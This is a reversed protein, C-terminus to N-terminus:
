RRSVLRRRAASKSDRRRHQPLDSVMIAIVLGLAGVAAGSFLVLALVPYGFLKSAGTSQSALAGAIVLAAVVVGIALRNALRQASRMLERENIGQINFTFTGEALADMVSNIRSPLKEAFEKAELASTLLNGPSVGRALKKRLLQEAHREIVENPRLDPNLIRGVEDLNLLAKGVMTLEPPPRLGCESAALLMQGILEGAQLNEISRGSHQGVLRDVRARLAVGDFAPLKAGMDALLDAVQAGDGSSLGILLKVLSDQRAPSVRGVMGLDILALDGDDTLLINGPHPDAHFWGHVLIQDLYAELLMTALDHGDVDLRALPGLKGLSRGAVWDMTLVVRTSYGDVPAPVLIRRYQALNDRMMRLNAAENTFDLETLLTERFEEAMASFGLRAGADTHADVFGALEAIVGMDELVGDRIAPRQVKVAVARGGRLTARHVQALSAAAVPRETFERFAKSIRVGLEDEIIGRVQDFPIPAVHDQLRRLAKLYASPLLDSRTSLVQGLKIFTPGMSEFARALEVGDPAVEEETEPDSGDGRALAHRHKVLLRSLEAYRGVHRARLNPMYRRRAESASSRGRRTIARGCTRSTGVSSLESDSDPPSRARSLTAINTAPLALRRTRSSGVLLGIWSRDLRHSRDQRCGLRVDTFVWPLAPQSWRAVLTRPGPVM